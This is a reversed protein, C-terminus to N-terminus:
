AFSSIEKISGWHGIPCARWNAADLKQWGPVSPTSGCTAVLANVPAATAQIDQVNAHYMSHCVSDSVRRELANLRQEMMLLDAETGSDRIRGADLELGSLEEGDDLLQDIGATAAALVSDCEVLSEYLRRTRSGDAAPILYLCIM